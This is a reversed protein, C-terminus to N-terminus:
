CPSSEPASPQLRADIDAAYDPRRRGPRSRARIADFLDAGEPYTTRALQWLEATTAIKMQEPTM